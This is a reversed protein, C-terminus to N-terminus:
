GSWDVNESLGNKNRSDVQSVSIKSLHSINKTNPTIEYRPGSIPHYLLGLQDICQNDKSLELSLHIMM